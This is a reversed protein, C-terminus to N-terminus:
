RRRRVEGSGAEHKESVEADGYWTVDGSGSTWAKLVGGTLTLDVDASGSTRVEADRVTLERARVDGSGSTRAVFSEAKGSLTVEGSGSTSVELRAAEGRWRIDGSGSTALELDGRGGEVVADASGNTGLARLEPLTVTVYADGRYHLDVGRATEVYLTADKVRTVVHEHLNSDITVAVSWAPGVTAHVDIEGRVAVREFGALDRKETTKQGNGRVDEDALAAVPAALTLALAAASAVRM